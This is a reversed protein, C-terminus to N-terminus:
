KDGALPPHGGSRTARSLDAGAEHLGPHPPIARDAAVRLAADRHGQQGARRQRATGRRAGGPDALGLREVAAQTRRSRAARVRDGRNDLPCRRRGVVAEFDSASIANRIEGISSDYGSSLDRLAGRRHAGRIAAAAGFLRAAERHSTALEAIMELIDAVCGYAEVSATCALAEHANRHAHEPENEAMAVRARAILAAARFWGATKAISDDAWRRASELDGNALAVHAIYASNISATGYLDGLRSWGANAAEMAKAGDGAALNAVMLGVYSAGLYVDGLEEASAIGARPSRGRRM